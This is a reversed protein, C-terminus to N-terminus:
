GGLYAGCNGCYNEDGWTSVFGCFPCYIEGSKAIKWEREQYAWFLVDDRRLRCEGSDLTWVYQIHESQIQEDYWNYAVLSGSVFEHTDTFLYLKKGEVPLADSARHWGLVHTYM